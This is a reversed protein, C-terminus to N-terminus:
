VFDILKKLGYVAVNLGAVVIRPFIGFLSGIIISAWFTRWDAPTLILGCIGGIICVAGIIGFIWNFVGGAFNFMMMVITLLAKHRMQGYQMPSM